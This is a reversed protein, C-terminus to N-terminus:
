AWGILKSYAMAGLEYCLITFRSYTQIWKYGYGPEGESYASLWYFDRWGLKKATAVARKTHLDLTVLSPRKLKEKKIIDMSFRLNEFTNRSRDEEIIVGSPIGLRIAYEAMVKSNPIGLRQNDGSSMILKADPFKLWWKYALEILSRTPKTPTSRDKLAYSLLLFCDPNTPPNDEIIWSKELEKIM